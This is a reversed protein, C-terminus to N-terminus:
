EAYFVVGLVGPGTHAGMVPTLETVYLEACDFQEAVQQRLAEAKEPEDAHLIAVHLPRLTRGASDVREAMQQVMVRLAKSLTRPRAFVDVHGDAVYLVPKIQLMTGLLTAAGGIRGGRHLYELTGLTALLNMRGAVEQARTVVTELDAGAAAARAAALVVFGQGMAATHCNVVRISRFPRGDPGDVLQSATVASNYTASLKPSLHISVIGSAEQAAAAYVRLFDGVSPASTTSLHSSERLWRYVEAATIDVGDRFTHGDLALLIPVVQIDLEEVLDAPVTANSDTVVVIKKM